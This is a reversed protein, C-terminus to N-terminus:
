QMMVSSLRLQAMARSRPRSVAPSVTSMDVVVKGPAMAGLLGILKVSGLVLQTVSEATLALLFPGIFSAISDWGCHHVRM